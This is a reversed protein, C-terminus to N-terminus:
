PYGQGILMMARPSYAYGLSGIHLAYYSFLVGFHVGIWLYLHVGIWAYLREHTSWDKYIWLVELGNLTDLLYLHVGIWAYLREHTSRGM